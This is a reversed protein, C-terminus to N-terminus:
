VTWSVSSLAHSRELPEEGGAHLWPMTAACGERMAELLRAVVAMGGDVDGQM